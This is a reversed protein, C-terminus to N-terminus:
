ACCVEIGRHILQLYSISLIFSLVYKSVVEVYRLIKHWNLFWYSLASPVSHGKSITLASTSCCLDDESRATVTHIIESELNPAINWNQTYIYVCSQIDKCGNKNWGGHFEAGNNCFKCLNYFTINWQLIQWVQFSLQM